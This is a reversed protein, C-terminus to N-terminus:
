SGLRHWDVGSYGIEQRGLAYSLASLCHYSSPYALRTWPRPQAAVWSATSEQTISLAPPWPLLGEAFM